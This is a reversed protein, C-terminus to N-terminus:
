KSKSEEKNEISNVFFNPIDDKALNQPVKTNENNYPMIIEPQYDKLYSNTGLGAYNLNNGNKANYLAKELNSLLGNM